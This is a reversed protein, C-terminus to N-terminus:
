IGVEELMKEADPIRLEGSILKPLLTDRLTTLSATQNSAAHIRAWLSSAAHDFALRLTEPPELIPYGPFETLPTRNVTAGHISREEIVKQFSKAIFQHFWFHSSGNSAKTRILAMRRGLCCKLGHPIVAFLGLAAEYTFVIDDARPEVRRTWQSWDNHGILKVDSLNLSSGTMNKIGLFVNGEEAEKPTAHPGDFVEGVSSEITGVRWGSPIEGLESDEFSDPFLDSIEDPLGTPRGEAKARVPDFDVFWSKFLAKAMAELTENTKRNLEIKDDLTGLIHAIAKQEPLPPINLEISKLMGLNFGPVSSGIGNDIIWNRIKPSSFQYYLFRSDAMAPDPTMKMQKNSIVYEEYHSREDILGVQDITGWCTFILDGHKVTSREFERAKDETIFVLDEHSLRTGVDQSLNGGRIVPVGSNVFFRSSIASGFPGTSMASKHKGCVKSAQFVKWESSM